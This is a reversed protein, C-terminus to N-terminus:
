RIADFKHSHCRACKVTLALFASSTTHVLDELRDYQYDLKDNPEDNWTGLRLFGTAIVSEETRDPLEDGAIQQMVFQDYSMDSNFAKVVWDRYKWAFPKEQDREYGSTDAYRALDLWYRAWREGYQPMELLRDILRPWAEPSEDALFAKIEDETPPLGVLDYFARRVLTRRDARPAPTINEAELKARVFADIPNNPQPQRVLQPVEPRVVPQLSWWDRGARADNTQEFYDLERDDPWKAGGALWQRILKIEEDSLKQSRGQKEPPMEGDIVRQLLKSDDINRLDIIQGSEGGAHLGKRTTLLLGGSPNKGQHCEVCRRVLLPAIVSEFDSAADAGSVSISSAVSLWVLLRVLWCSLPGNDSLDPMADSHHTRKSLM